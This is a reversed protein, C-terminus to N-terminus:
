GADSDPMRELCHVRARTLYQKVMSRSVGLRGAIERYTMGDRRALVLAARCKPPLEAAVRELRALRQRTLARHETPRSRDGDISREVLDTNATERRRGRHAYFDCVLNAAIRFLMAEPRRIREARDVRLLRLYAEQALDEADAAAPLRRELYHSLEDDKKDFVREVLKRTAATM